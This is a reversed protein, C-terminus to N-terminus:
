NQLIKYSLFDIVQASYGSGIIVYKSLPSFSAHDVLHSLIIEAINEGTHINIIRVRKDWCGTLM